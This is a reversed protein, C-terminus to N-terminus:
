KVFRRRFQAQLQALGALAQQREAQTCDLAAFEDEDLV